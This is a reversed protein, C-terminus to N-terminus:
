ISFNLRRLGLSCLWRYARSIRMYAIMITFRCNTLFGSKSWWLASTPPEQFAELNNQSVWQSWLLGQNFGEKAYGYFDKIFKMRKKHDPAYWMFELNAGGIRHQGAIIDDFSKGSTKIMEYMAMFTTTRGLGALCHFHLWNNKGEIARLFTIFEDVDSDEPRSVDTVAIRHYQTNMKTVCAKETQFAPHNRSFNEEDAQIEQFPLGRYANAKASEISATKNAYLMFHPEERLDVFIISEPQHPIKALIRELEVATYQQSGSVPLGPVIRFRSAILGEEFHTLDSRQIRGAHSSTALSAVFEEHLSTEYNASSLSTLLISLSTLLYLINAFTKKTKLIM